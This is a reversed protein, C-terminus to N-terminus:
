RSANGREAHWRTLAAAINARHQASYAGRKKGLKAAALKRRHEASLPRGRHARSIKERTEQPLPGRKQGRQLASIKARTEPSHNRGLMPPAAAIRVCNYYPQRADLWRQEAEILADAPALVLVAFEFAEAGYKRWASQLPPCHHEGKNLRCRHVAWRAGFDKASGIYQRGSAVHTIAYIGSKM